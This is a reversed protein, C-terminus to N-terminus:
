RCQSSSWYFQWIEDCAAYHWRSNFDTHVNFNVNMFRKESNEGSFFLEERQWPLQLISESMLQCSEVRRHTIVNGAWRPNLIVTPSFRRPNIENPKPTMSSLVILLNKTEDDCVFAIRMLPFIHTTTPAVRPCARKPHHYPFGTDHQCFPGLASSEILFVRGVLVSLLVPRFLSILSHFAFLRCM